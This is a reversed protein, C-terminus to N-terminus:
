TPIHFDSISLIKNLETAHGNCGNGGTLSAASSIIQDLNNNTGFQNRNFENNKNPKVYVYIIFMLALVWFWLPLLSLIPKQIKKAKSVFNEILKTLPPLPYSLISTTTDADTSLVYDVYDIRADSKPIVLTNQPFRYHPEIAFTALKDVDLIFKTFTEQNYENESHQANCNETGKKLAHLFTNMEIPSLPGLSANTANATKLNQSPISELFYLSAPIKVDPLQMLRPYVSRNRKMWNNMRSLWTHWRYIMGSTLEQNVGITPLGLSVYGMIRTIITENVPEFTVNTLTAVTNEQNVREQQIPTSVTVTTTAM